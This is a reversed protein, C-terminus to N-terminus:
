FRFMFEIRGRTFEQGWGLGPQKLIMMKLGIQTLAFGTTNPNRYFTGTKVFDLLPPDPLKREIIRLPASSVVYPNMVVAAREFAEHPAAPENVNASLEAPTEFGTVNALAQQTAASMLSRSRDSLPQSVDRLVAVPADHVPRRAFIPPMGTQPRLTCVFFLPGFALLAARSLSHM